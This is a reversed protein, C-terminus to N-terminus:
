KSFVATFPRTGAWLVRPAKDQAFSKKAVIDNSKLKRLCTPPGEVRLSM